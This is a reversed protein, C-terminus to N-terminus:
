YVLTMLGVCQIVDTESFLDTRVAAADPMMLGAAVAPM